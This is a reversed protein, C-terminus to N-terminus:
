AASGGIWARREKAWVPLNRPRASSGLYEGIVEATMEDVGDAVLIKLLDISERLGPKDRVAPMDRRIHNIM